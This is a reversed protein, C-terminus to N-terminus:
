DAESVTQNLIDIGLESITAGDGETVMMGLFDLGGRKLPNVSYEFSYEAWESTLDFKQWGSNGVEGTSYALALTAPLSGSAAAIVSVKITQGSIEAEQEPNIELYAGSTRNGSIGGDVGGTLLLYGDEGLAATVVGNNIVKSLDAKIDANEIKPLEVVTEIPKTTSESTNTAPELGCAATTASIALVAWTLKKRHMM